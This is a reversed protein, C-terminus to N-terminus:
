SGLNTLDTISLLFIQYGAIGLLSHVYSGRNLFANALAALGCIAIFLFIGESNYHGVRTMIILLVGLELLFTCILSTIAKILELM